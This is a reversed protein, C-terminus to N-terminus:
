NMKISPPFGYYGSIFGQLLPSFSSVFQVAITAWDLLQVLCWRLSLRSAYGSSWGHKGDGAVGTPNFTNYQQILVKYKTMNKKVTILAIPNHALSLDPLSHYMNSTYLCDLSHGHTSNKLIM